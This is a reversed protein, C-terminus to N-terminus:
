VDLVVFKGCEPCGLSGDGDCDPVCDFVRGKWGCTCCAPVDYISILGSV